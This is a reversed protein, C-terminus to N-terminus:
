HTVAAAVFLGVIGLGCIALVIVTVNSVPRKAQQRLPGHRHRSYVGLAGGMLAAGAFLWRVGDSM